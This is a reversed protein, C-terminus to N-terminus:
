TASLPARVPWRGKLDADQHSISDKIAATPAEGSLNAFDSDALYKLKLENPQGEPGSTYAPSVM